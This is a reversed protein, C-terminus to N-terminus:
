LFVTPKILALVLMMLIVVIIIGYTEMFRAVQPHYQM